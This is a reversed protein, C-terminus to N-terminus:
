IQETKLYDSRYIKLKGDKSRKLTHIGVSRSNMFGTGSLAKTTQKFLVKVEDFTASVLQMDEIEYAMDFNQFVYVMGERTSRLQPSDEHITQVVRETDEAQTAALNEKIVGFAELRLRKQEPTLNILPKLEPQTNQNQLNSKPVQGKKNQMEQDLSSDKESECGVIVLHMMIVLIISSLNKM